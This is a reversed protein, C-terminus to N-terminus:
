VVFLFLIQHNSWNLQIKSFQKTEKETRADPAQFGHIQSQYQRDIAM